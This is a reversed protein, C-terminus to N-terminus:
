VKISELARIHGQVVGLMEKAYALIEPDRGARIEKQIGMKAHRHHELIASKFTRNFEDGKLGDLKAILKQDAATLGGPIAMGKPKVLKALKQQAHGHASILMTGYDRLGSNDSKDLALRGARSEFANGFAISPVFRADQANPKAIAVAALLGLAAVAISKANMSEKLASFAAANGIRGCDLRDM